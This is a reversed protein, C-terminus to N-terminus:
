FEAMIEKSFKVHLIIMRNENLAKGLNTDKVKNMVKFKKLKLDQMCSMDDGNTCLLPYIVCDPFLLKM